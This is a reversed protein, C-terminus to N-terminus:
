TSTLAEVRSRFSTPDVAPYRYLEPEIEEFLERARRPEVLGTDLMSRVDALDQAHARELKSLAQAYPDFHYFSLRGERTVFIHRDESGSPVPVFDAPSVLEVNIRLEDKLRPIARLLPDSEPAFSVDVDITTERWGFLVATAGGALYAAGDADAEAGLARMFRRIREADALERV